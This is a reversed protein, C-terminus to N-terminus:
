MSKLNYLTVCDESCLLKMKTQTLGMHSTRPQRVEKHYIQFYGKYPSMRKGCVVCNGKVKSSTFPFVHVGAVLM